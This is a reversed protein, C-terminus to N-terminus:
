EVRTADRHATLNTCPCHWGWPRRGNAQSQNAGADLAETHFICAVVNEGNDGGRRDMNTRWLMHRQGILQDSCVFGLRSISNQGIAVPFCWDVALHRMERGLILDSM